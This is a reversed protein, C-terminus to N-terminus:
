KEGRRERGKENKKREREEEWKRWSGGERRERTWKSGKGLLKEEEEGMKWEAGGVTYDRKWM